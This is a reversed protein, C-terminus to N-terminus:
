QPSSALDSPKPLNVGSLREGAAIMLRGLGALMPRKRAVPSEEVVKARSRRAKAAAKMERDRDVALEYSMIPHPTM